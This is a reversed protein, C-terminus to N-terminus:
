AHNEIVRRNANPQCRDRIKIRPCPNSRVRRRQQCCRRGFRPREHRCCLEVCRRRGDGRRACVAPKQVTGDKYHETEWKVPGKSSLPTRSFNRQVGAAAFVANPIDEPVRMQLPIPVRQAFNGAGSVFYVGCFSGHEMIKRWHSRYEGLNPISFSMSYTDAGQEVAWQIAAELRQSGIVGTWSAEPAIGFQYEHGKAGSGCIVAACTYGHMLQPQLMGRPVDRMTLNPSRLDFNYGHYDDILGNGDDDKGNDPIEGKRRYLNATVNDSFVFNFDHVVNLTGRGTAGFKQWVKDAQLYRVYWPYQYQSPDFKNGELAPFHPAKGANAPSRNFARGAIFIKKVGPVKKLLDIQDAAITGRFGNVIWHREFNLIKRDAQLKDLDAKAAAYSKDSLSKLTKIVSARLERRKAGAFEEARRAYAKGDGLFQEDFWVNVRLNGQGRSTPMVWVGDGALKESPLLKPEKTEDASLHTWGAALIVLVFHTNRM